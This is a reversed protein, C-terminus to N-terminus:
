RYSITGALIKILYKVEYTELEDYPKQFLRIAEADALDYWNIHHKGKFQNEGNMFDKFTGSM